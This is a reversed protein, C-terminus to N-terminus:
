KHLSLYYEAQKELSKRKIEEAKLFRLRSSITKWDVGMARSSSIFRIQQFITM